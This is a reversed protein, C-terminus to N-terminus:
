KKVGPRTLRVGHNIAPYHNGPKLGELKYTGLLTGNEGHGQYPADFAWLKLLLTGTADTSSTNQIGEAKMTMSLGEPTVQYGTSGQLKAGAHLATSGCTLSLTLLSFCLLPGRRVPM